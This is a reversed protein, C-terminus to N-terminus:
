SPARRFSERLRAMSRTARRRLRALPDKKQGYVNKTISNLRDRLTNLLLYCVIIEHLEDEPLTDVQFYDHGVGNRTAPMLRGNAAVCNQHMTGIVDGDDDLLTLSNPTMRWTYEMRTPLLTEDPLIKVFAADFLEATGQLTQEGIHISSAHNEEWTIEAVARGTSDELFTTRQNPDGTALNEQSKSSSALTSQSFSRARQPSSTTTRFAVAGTACDILTTDHIDASSFKFLM